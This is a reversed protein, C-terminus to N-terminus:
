RLSFPGGPRDNTVRGTQYGIPTVAPIYRAARGGLAAAEGMLRPSSLLATGVAAMPDVGAMMGIGPLATARAIGRPYRSQLAQGALEEMLTAGVETEGLKKGLELRRGYSTNVENRMISQLSRLMTDVSKPRKGGKGLKFTQEIDIILESAKEYNGMIKKYEPVQKIITGRVARYARDAVARQPSGYPLGDRIEGIARKLADFGQPTHYPVPAGSKFEEVKATVEDLVRQPETGRVAIDGFKGEKSAGALAKDIGEFSLPEINRGMQKMSAVYEANRARRIEELASKATDLASNLPAKERLNSTFAKLREGGARGADAAIKLAEGGTGTLMGVAGSITSAPLGIAKPIKGVTGLAAAPLQVPDTVKGIVDAGRQIKGAMGPVRAALAGGGTFVTSIDAFVGVPDTALTRKINELGGYREAFMRGVNRAAEEEPQEGPRILGIIGKGLTWLADATGVPNVIPQVIDSLFKQASQPANQLAQAGVETIPMAPAESSESPLPVFGGQNAPPLPVFGNM